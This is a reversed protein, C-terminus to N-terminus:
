RVVVKQQVGILTVEHNEPKQESEEDDPMYLPGKQGCAVLFLAALSALGLQRIRKTTM